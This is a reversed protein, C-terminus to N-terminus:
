YTNAIPIIKWILQHRFADFLSHTPARYITFSKLREWMCCVQLLCSQFCYYNEKITLLHFYNNLVTSCKRMKYCHKCTRDKEMLSSIGYVATASEHDLRNQTFKDFTCTEIQKRFQKFILFFRRTKTDNHSVYPTQSWHSALDTLADTCDSRARCQKTLKDYSCTKYCYGNPDKAHSSM